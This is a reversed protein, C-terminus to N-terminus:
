QGGEAMGQKGWEEDEWMRDTKKRPGCGRQASTRPQSAKQAVSLGGPYSDLNLVKRGGKESIKSHPLCTNYVPPENIVSEGEDEYVGMEEGDPVLGEDQRSPPRQQFPGPAALLSCSSPATGPAPFERCLQRCRAPM